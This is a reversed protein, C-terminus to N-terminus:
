FHGKGTRTALAPGTVPAVDPVEFGFHDLGTRTESTPGVSVPPPIAAASASIGAPVNSGALWSAGGMQPATVYGTTPDYVLPGTLSPDPPAGPPQAAAVAAANFIYAAADASPIGASVGYSFSNAFAASTTLRVPPPATPTIAGGAQGRALFVLGVGIALLLIIPM